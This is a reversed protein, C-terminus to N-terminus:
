VDEGALIGRLDRWKQVSTQKVVRDPLTEVPDHAIGTDFSRLAGAGGFKPGRRYTSQTIILSSSLFVKVTHVHGCGYSNKHCFHQRTIQKRYSVKKKDNM